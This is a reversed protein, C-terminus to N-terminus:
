RSCEQTTQTQQLQAPLLAVADDTITPRETDEFWVDVWLENDDSGGPTCVSTRHRVPVNPEDVAPPAQAASPAPPPAVDQVPTAPASAPAVAPPAAAMVQVIPQPRLPPTAAAASPVGGSLGVALGVALGGTAIAEGWREFRTWIAAPVFGIRELERRLRGRARSLLTWTAQPSIGLSHAVAAAGGDAEVELAQRYRPPLAALARRVLFRSEAAIVEDEPGRQSPSTIQELDAGAGSPVERAARFRDIAVRKAVTRLWASAGPDIGRAVARALAEQAVDERDHEPIWRPAIQHANSAYNSTPV